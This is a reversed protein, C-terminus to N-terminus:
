ALGRRPAALAHSRVVEQLYEVMSEYVVGADFKERFVERANVSARQLAERERDLRRLLQVLADADEEPYHYGCAHRELFDSLYGSLCTVVPLGGAIYEIPKNPLNGIYGSHNRYPAIGFQSMEMLALIEPQEVWGTFLIEPVDRARRKLDELRDGEGCFVVRVAVDSGRLRRVAEIVTDFDSQFGVSGFYCGLLEKHDRRIGHGEWYKEAALRREPSVPPISYGFPFFRDFTSAARGALALGWEVFNPANGIIAFAQRCANRVQRRPMQIVVDAVHRLWKPLMEVYIDPWLDRIDVVVPVNFHLGIQTSALALDITPMSALIVDPKESALALQEFRKAVRAHDIARALSVNRTYGPAQVLRLTVNSGWQVEADSKALHQKRIHDFASTWWTVRHGGAALHKALM